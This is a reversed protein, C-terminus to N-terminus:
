ALLLNKSSSRDNKKRDRELGDIQELITIAEGELKKRSTEYDENSLNSNHINEKM